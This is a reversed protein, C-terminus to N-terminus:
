IGWPGRVSQPKIIINVGSGMEWEYYYHAEVSGFVIVSREKREQHSSLSIGWGRVNHSWMQSIGIKSFKINLPQKVFHQLESVYM